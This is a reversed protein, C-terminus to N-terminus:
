WGGEGVVPCGSDESRGYTKGGVMGLKAESLKSVVAGWTWCCQGEDEEGSLITRSTELLVLTIPM